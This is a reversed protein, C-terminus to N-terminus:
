YTADQIKISVKNKKIVVQKQKQETHKAADTGDAAYFIVDIRSKWLGKTINIQLLASM